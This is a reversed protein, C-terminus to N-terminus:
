LSGTRTSRSPSRHLRPSRIGVLRSSHKLIWLTRTSRSRTFFMLLRFFFIDFIFYPMNFVFRPKGVATKRGVRACQGEQPDRHFVRKQDSTGVSHACIHIGVGNKAVITAGYDDIWRGSDGLSWMAFPLCIAGGRLPGKGVLSYNPCAHKALDVIRARVTGVSLPTRSKERVM